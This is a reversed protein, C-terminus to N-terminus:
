IEQDQEAPQTVVSSAVFESAVADYASELLEVAANATLGREMLHRALEVFTEVGDDNRWGNPPIAKIAEILKDIESM